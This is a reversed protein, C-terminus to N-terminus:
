GGTAATYDYVRGLIDALGYLALMSWVVAFTMIAATVLPAPQYSEDTDDTDDTIFHEM